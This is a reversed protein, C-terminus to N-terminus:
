RCCWSHESREFDLREDNSGTAESRGGDRDACRHGTILLLGAAPYAKVALPDAKPLKPQKGRLCEKAKAVKMGERILGRILDSEIM